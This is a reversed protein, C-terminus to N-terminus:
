TMGFPAFVVQCAFLCRNSCRNRRFTTPIRDPLDGLSSRPAFHRAMVAGASWRDDAHFGAGSGPKSSHQQASPTIGASRPDVEERFYIVSNEHFAGFTQTFVDKEM